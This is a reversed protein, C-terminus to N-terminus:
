GNASVAQLQMSLKVISESRMGGMLSDLCHPRGGDGRSWLRWKESGRFRDAMATTDSSTGAAQMDPM